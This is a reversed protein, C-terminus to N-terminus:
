FTAEHYSVLNVVVFVLFWYSCVGHVAVVTFTIYQVTADFVVIYM